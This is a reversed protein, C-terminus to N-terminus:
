NRFLIVMAIKRPHTFGNFIIEPLSHGLYAYRVVFAHYTLHRFHPVVYIALIYLVVAGLSFIFWSMKPPYGKKFLGYLGFACVFLCMNEKILMLLVSAILLVEVTEESFGYVDLVPDAAQLSVGPNFEMFLISFINPPFPIYLVMLIGGGAVPRSTNM